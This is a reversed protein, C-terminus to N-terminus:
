RFRGKIESIFTLICTLCACLQKYSIFFNCLFKEFYFFLPIDEGYDRFDLQSILTENRLKYYNRLEERHEKLEFDSCIDIHECSFTPEYQLVLQIDEKLEKIIDKKTDKDDELQYIIKRELNQKVINIPVASSSVVVVGVLTAALYFKKMM